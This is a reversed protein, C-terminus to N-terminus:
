ELLPPPNVAVRINEWDGLNRDAATYFLLFRDGLDVVAPALESGHNVFTNPYIRDFIPNYPYVQFIVGDLSAAYGVSYNSPIQGTTGFSSGETSEYGRASFYMRYLPDGLYDYTLMVYPSRVRTVARWLLDNGVLEANLIQQRASGGPFSVGLADQAVALGIGAGDGVEYYLRPYGDPGVVVSPARVRGEEWAAEPVLVPDPPDFAWSRGDASFARLIGEGDGTEVYMIFGGGGQVVTPARYDGLIPPELVPAAPDVQWSIGDVTVARFIMHRPREFPGNHIMDFFVVLNGNVDPAVAPETLWRPERQIVCEETDFCDSDDSCPVSICRARSLSCIEGSQCEANVICLQQCMGIDCRANPGQCDCDDECEGVCRSLTFDCVRGEGCEDNRTCYKVTCYGCVCSERSQCDSDVACRERPPASNPVCFGALDTDPTGLRHDAVCIEVGGLDKYPAVGSVLRSGSWLPEDAMTCGVTGVILVGVLASAVHHIPERLM